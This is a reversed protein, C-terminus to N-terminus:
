DKKKIKKFGNIIIKLGQKFSDDIELTATWGNTLEFLIFGHLFSRLVRAHYKSESKSLDLQNHILERFIDRTKLLYGPFRDYNDSPLFTLVKYREPYTQAYKRYTNAFQYIGNKKSIVSKNLIDFFEESIHLFVDIYVDELSSVHNYLSPPKLNLKRALLNITLNDFGFEDILAISTDIIIKNTLLTTRAM